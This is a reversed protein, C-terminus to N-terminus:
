TEPGEHQFLKKWEEVPTPPVKAVALNSQVHKKRSMGVLATTLGPASRAFQIANQWDHAFGLRQQLFQPLGTVLAGEHLTASGVVLVGLRRAADLL